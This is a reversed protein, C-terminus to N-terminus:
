CPRIEQPRPMPPSCEFEWSRKPPNKSWGPGMHFFRGHIRFYKALQHNFWGMQFIHEDFQIMEGPNPTFIFSNGNGLKSRGLNLQFRLFEKIYRNQYVIFCGSFFRLSPPTPINSWTDNYIVLGFVECSKKQVKLFSYFDSLIFFLLM